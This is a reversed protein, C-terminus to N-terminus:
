ALSRRELIPVSGLFSGLFAVGLGVGVGAGALGVVGAGVVGAGVVGGGVVREQDQATKFGAGVFRLWGDSLVCGDMREKIQGRGGRNRLAVTDNRGEGFFSPFGEELHTDLRLLLSSGILVQCRRLFRSVSQRIICFSEIFRQNM